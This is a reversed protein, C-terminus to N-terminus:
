KASGVEDRTGVVPVLLVPVCSRTLAARVVNARGASLNQSWGLAILDVDEAEAVEIVTTPAAGRRLRLDVDTDACWRALFETTFSQEAHGPEDWFRPVTTADFVHLGVLHVGAGALRRLSEAVAGASEATGELPILARLIPPRAVPSTFEPPVVLVPKNLQELVATAIHGAPRPDIPQGRAGLVVLVVAPDTAMRAIETVPDGDTIELPIGAQEAVATATEKGPERVHMAKLSADLLSAFARGEQLVPWAATSDDIAALVISM